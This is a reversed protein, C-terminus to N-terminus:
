ISLSLQATELKMRRVPLVLQRGYGHDVVKGFSTWIWIPAKYVNGGKEEIIVMGKKGRLYKAFVSLQIGYGGYRYFFHKGPDVSKYFSPAGMKDRELRGIVRGEYEIIM